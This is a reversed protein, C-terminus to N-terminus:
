FTGGISLGGYVISGGPGFLPTVVARFFFGGEPPQVRFGASVAGIVGSREESSSKGWFSSEGSSRSIFPVIGGGIEWHTDGQGTFYNLMLPFGTFRLDTGIFWPLTWTTFGIRVSMQDHFCRDYNVSYLGGPGALEIFIANRARPVTDNEQAKLLGTSFATCIITLVLFPRSVCM